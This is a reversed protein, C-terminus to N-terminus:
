HWCDYSGPIRTQMDTVDSVSDINELEARVRLWLCIQLGLKIKPEIRQGLFVRPLKTSGINSGLVDTHSAAVSGNHRAALGFARYKWQRCQKGDCLSFRRSKDLHFYPSMEM